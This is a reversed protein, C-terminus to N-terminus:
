PRVVARFLVMQDDSLPAIFGTTTGDAEIAQSNIAEWSGPEATTSSQVNFRKGEVSAWELQIGDATPLIQTIRLLDTSDGPDTGLQGETHKL